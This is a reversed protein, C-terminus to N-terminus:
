APHFLEQREIASISLRELPSGDRVSTICRYEISISQITTTVVHTRNKTSALVLNLYTRGGPVILRDGVVASDNSEVMERPDPLTDWADLEPDYIRLTTNGTTGDPEEGGPFLVKEEHVTSPNTQSPEPM